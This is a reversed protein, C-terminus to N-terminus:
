DGLTFQCHEDPTLRYVQGFRRFRCSSLPNFFMLEGQRQKPTQLQPSLYATGVSVIRELCGRVIGDSGGDLPMGEDLFQDPMVMGRNMRKEFAERDRRTLIYGNLAEIRESPQGLGTVRAAIARRKCALLPEGDIVVVKSGSFLPLVVIDGVALGEVGEPLRFVEVIAAHDHRMGVMDDASLLASDPTHILSSNWAKELDERPRLIVLDNFARM